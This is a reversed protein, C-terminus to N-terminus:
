RPQFKRMQPQVFPLRDMFREIPRLNQTSSTPSTQGGGMIIVESKTDSSPASTHDIQKISTHYDTTAIGVRKNDARIADDDDHDDGSARVGQLRIGYADISDPAKHSRSGYRGPDSINIGHPKDMSIFGRIKLTRLLPRITALSSATIAVGVEVLSWISADTPRVQDPSAFFIGLSLIMIVTVKAQTTMKVKWLMPIPILASIAYAATLVDEAGACTGDPIRYDWQKQIPTCQFIDWTFLGVSWFTIIVLVIRIIWIYSKQTAIRLLFFGISLKVFMM